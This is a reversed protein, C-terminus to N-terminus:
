NTPNTFKCLLYSLVCLIQAPSLFIFKTITSFDSYSAGNPRSSVRVDFSTQRFEIQLQPSYEAPLPYPKSKQVNHITEM